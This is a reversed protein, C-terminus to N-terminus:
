NCWNRATNHNRSFRDRSLNPIYTNRVSYARDIWQQIYQPKEIWDYVLAFPEPNNNKLCNDYLRPPVTCPQCEGTKYDQRTPLLIGLLGSRLKSPTTRLSSYIEWDVYKRRWTNQGVLVVTVTSDRLNEERIRQMVRETNTDTDIDGPQISKSVIVDECLREFRERWEQDEDHYYSVFVKHMETM